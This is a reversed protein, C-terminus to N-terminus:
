RSYALYTYRELSALYAEWYRELLSPALSPDTSACTKPARKIAPKLPPGWWQQLHPAGRCVYAGVCVFYISPFLIWKNKIWLIIRSLFLGFCLMPIFITPLLSMLTENIRLKEQPKNKNHRSNRPTPNPIPSPSSRFERHLNIQKYLNRTNHAKYTSQMEIAALNSDYLNLKIPWPPPSNMPIETTQILTTHDNYYTYTVITTSSFSSSNM